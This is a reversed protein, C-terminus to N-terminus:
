FCPSLLTFLTSFRVTARPRAGNHVAWCHRDNALLLWIPFLEAWLWRVLAEERGHIHSAPFDGAIQFGLCKLTYQGGARIKNLCPAVESLRPLIFIVCGFTPLQWGGQM